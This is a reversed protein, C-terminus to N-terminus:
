SAFTPHQRILHFLDKGYRATNYRNECLMRGRQGMAAMQDTDSSISNIAEIWSNSDKSRTWHGIREEQINIDMLPHRTMIVPRGMAMAELLSTIGIQTGRYDEPLDLPIAVALCKRYLEFTEDFSIFSKERLTVNHPLEGQALGSEQPTCIIFQRDSNKAAEVLTKFDRRTAGISLIYGEPKPDCSPKPYFKLDAGWPMYVFKDKFESWASISEDYLSKSLVSIKWHADITNRNQENREIPSHLVSLLNARFVRSKHLLGLFRTDFFYGCYVISYLFAKLAVRLQQNLNGYRGTERVLGSKHRLIDVHIGEHVLHNVGFLHLDPGVHIKWNQWAQRM